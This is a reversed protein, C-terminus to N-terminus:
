IHQCEFHVFETVPQTEGKKKTAIQNDDNAPDSKKIFRYRKWLLFFMLKLILYEEKGTYM